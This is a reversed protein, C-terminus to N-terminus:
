ANSSSSFHNLKNVHIKDTVRKQIEENALFLIASRIEVRKNGKYERCEMEILQKLKCLLVANSHLVM